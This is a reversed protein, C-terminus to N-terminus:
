RPEVYVERDILKGQLFTGKIDISEPCWGENAAIALALRFTTKIVTPSDVQLIEDEEFGRVVLRAKVIKAQESIEKESIVWRTSITKQGLDKVEDMVEFSKWNDLENIKAEIVEPENHRSLPIM